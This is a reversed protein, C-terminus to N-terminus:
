VGLPPASVLCHNHCLSGSKGRCRLLMTMCPDSCAQATAELASGATHLADPCLRSLLCFYSELEAGVQSCVHVRAHHFPPLVCAVYM